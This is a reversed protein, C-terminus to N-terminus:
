HKEFFSLTLYHQMVNMYFIDIIEFRGGSSSESSSLAMDNEDMKSDSGPGNLPRLM